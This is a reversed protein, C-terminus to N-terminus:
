KILYKYEGFDDILLLKDMKQLEHRIATLIHKMSITSNENAALFASYVVVNKINGGAIEFTQGLYEFDVDEDLPAEKPFMVKWIETRSNADPFPYSIIYNIRRLFAKDINNLYNTALISIGEYEEIKQLLYSTEINAYRDNSSKVESRKGFLSDAEDFFLIANSLSAEKFIQHLNKETEGIYKSVIQSLDIRYLELNLESAIVQASMTKGTGPPGACILSLGKGYPLKKGFGWEEYVLHRNKVQNCADRLLKKQDIPLVLQNWTYQPKVKVAKETLKNDVQEYCAEYVNKKDVLDLLMKAKMSKVANEIQLPTFNFKSTLEAVYDKSVGYKGCNFNWLSLREEFTPRDITFAVTTNSSFYQNSIYKNQSLIFIPQMFYEMIDFVDKLLIEKSDVQDEIAQFNDLCVIAERIVSERMIKLMSEKLPIEKLMLVKLDAIITEKGIMNAYSKVLHKKGVGHEGSMYIFINSSYQTEDEIFRNITVRIKETIDEKYNVKDLFFNPEHITMIDSMNLDFSKNGFIFDIIRDDILIESSIFTEEDSSDKNSMIFKKFFSNSRLRNRFAMREEISLGLLRLVFDITPRKKNVNDNIFGFLKEYKTDIEVSIGLILLNREIFNLNFLESITEFNLKINKEKSLLLKNDMSITLKEIQENLRKIRLDEETSDKSKLTKIAEDRTITIGRLPNMSPADDIEQLMYKNIRLELLKLLDFLYENSEQYYAKIDM